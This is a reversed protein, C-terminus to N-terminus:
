YEKKKRKKETQKTQSRYQSVVACNKTGFTKYLFLNIMKALLFHNSLEPKLARGRKSNHPVRSPAPPIRKKNNARLDNAKRERLQVNITLTIENKGHQKEVVRRRRKKHSRLTVRRTEMQCQNRNLNLTSVCKQM